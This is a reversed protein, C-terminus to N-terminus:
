RGRETQIQDDICCSRLMEHSNLVTEITDMIIYRSTAVVCNATDRCQVNLVKCSLMFKGFRSTWFNPFELCRLRALHALYATIDEPVVDVMMIIKGLEGSSTNHRKRRHAIDATFTKQDRAQLIGTALLEMGAM